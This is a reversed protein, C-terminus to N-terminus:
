RDIFISPLLFSPLTLIIMFTSISFTRLLLNGDNYVNPHFIKSLFRVAPPKNPYDETFEMLLRFTGGEWPTEDPSILFMHDLNSILLLLFISSFFLLTERCEFMAHHIMNMVFTLSMGLFLPRGSWSMTTLLLVPFVPRHIM